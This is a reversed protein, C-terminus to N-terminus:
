CQGDAGCQSQPLMVGTVVIRCQELAAHVISVYVLVSYSNVCAEIAELIMWKFSTCPWLINVGQYSVCICALLDM